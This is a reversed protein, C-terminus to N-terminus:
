FFHSSQFSKWRGKKVYGKSTGKAYFWTSIGQWGVLTTYMGLFWVVNMFTYLVFWIILNAIWWARQQHLVCNQLSCCLSPFKFSLAWYCVEIACPLKLHICCDHIEVCTPNECAKSVSIRRGEAITKKSNIYIPYLVIWKKIAQINGDM